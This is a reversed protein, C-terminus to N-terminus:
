RTRRLRNGRVRHRPQSRETPAVSQRTLRYCLAKSCTVITSNDGRLASQDFGRYYNGLGRILCGASRPFDYGGKM